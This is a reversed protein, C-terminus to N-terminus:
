DFSHSEEDEIENIQGTAIFITRECINTVRDAMREINHVAWQLHNAFEVSTPDAIMSKVLGRYIENFLDDVKDDETPIQRATEVDGSLFANVSNSLMGTAIKAMDDLAFLPPLLEKEGVMLHIKSIGKAYDGMRELETIVDLISSLFRLDTALPQHTAIVILCAREIEYRKENIISDGKYVKRALDTNKTLLSSVADLTAERVMLELDSIQIKLEEIKSDLIERSM